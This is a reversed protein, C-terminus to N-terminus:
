KDLKMSAPYLGRQVQDVRHPLREPWPPFAHPNPPLPPAYPKAVPPDLSLAAPQQLPTDLLSIPQLLPVSPPAPTALLDPANFEVPPLPQSASVDAAPPDDPHQQWLMWSSGLLAALAIAITVHSAKM